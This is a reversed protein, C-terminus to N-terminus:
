NDAPNNEAQDGAKDATFYDIALARADDQVDDKPDNARKNAAIQKLKDAMGTHGAEIQVAHKDGDDSSYNHENHVMKDSSRNALRADMECPPDFMLVRAIPKM